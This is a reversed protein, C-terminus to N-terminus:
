SKSFEIEDSFASDIANCSLSFFLSFQLTIAKYMIGSIEIGDVTDLITTDVDLIAPSLVDM